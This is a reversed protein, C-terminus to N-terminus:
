ENDKEGPKAPPKVTSAHPAPPPTLYDAADAKSVLGASVYQRLEDDDLRSLEVLAGRAILLEIDDLDTTTLDVVDGARAILGGERASLNALAVYRPPKHKSM